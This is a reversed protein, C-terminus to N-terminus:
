LLYYTATASNHKNKALMEIVDNNKFGLVEM